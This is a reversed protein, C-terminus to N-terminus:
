FYLPYYDGVKVPGIVNTFTAGTMNVNTLDALTLTVNELTAGTLNITKDDLIKALNVNQIIEVYPGLPGTVETGEVYEDGLLYFYSNLGAFIGTQITFAINGEKNMAVPTTNTLTLSNNNLDWSSNNNYTSNYNYTILSTDTLLTIMDGSSNM